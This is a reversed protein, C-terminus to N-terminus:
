HQSIQRFGSLIDYQYLTRTPSSWSTFVGRRLRGCLAGLFIEVEGSVWDLHADFVVDAFTSEQQAVKKKIVNTDRTIYGHCTFQQAVKAYLFTIDPLESRIAAGVTSDRLLPLPQRSMM